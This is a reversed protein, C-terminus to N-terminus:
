FLFGSTTIGTTKFNVDILDERIPPPDPYICQYVSRSIYEEWQPTVDTKASAMAELHDFTYNTYTRQLIGSISAKKSKKLTVVGYDSLQNWKEMEGGMLECALQDYNSKFGQIYEELKPGHINMGVVEDVIGKLEQTSLSKFAQDIAAEM